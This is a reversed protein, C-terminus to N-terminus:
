GVMAADALGINEGIRCRATRKSMTRTLRERILQNNVVLTTCCRACQAGLRREIMEARRQNLYDGFWVEPLSKGRINEQGGEDLFGCPGVKGDVRIGMRYFPEFCPSDVFPDGSKLDKYLVKKMENTSEVLTSKTFHVLNSEIGFRESLKGARAAITEFEGMQAANLKLRAGTESYVTIPEIFVSEVAEQRALRVIGEVQMYNRNVMVVGLEIRPRDTGLRHKAERFLRLNRMVREFAGKWKVLYDHTAADSGHFSIKVHDWGSEVLADVGKETFLTGNTCVYGFMGWKKIRKMIEISDKRFCADGGGIVKFEKVGMRGADDVLRMYDDTTLEDLYDIESQGYRWCFLCDLNCRLTPAIEIGYPSPKEGRYWRHLIDIIEDM